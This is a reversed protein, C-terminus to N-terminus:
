KNLSANLVITIDSISRISDYSVGTVGDKEFSISYRGVPLYLRYFGEANTEALIPESGEPSASKSPDGMDSPQEVIRVATVLVGEELRNGTQVLGEIKGVALGEPIDGLGNVADWANQNKRILSALARREERSLSILINLIQDKNESAKM